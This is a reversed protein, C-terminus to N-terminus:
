TECRVDDIIRGDELRVIRQALPVVRPDHTVIAVIRTMEAALARLLGVVQMGNGADLSATPEDALVIAPDHAIARAVAVRQQEGGSLAAPKLMTKKALGVANLAARARSRAGDTRRVELSLLVNEEATLAPMLRFSQFVYGVKERRFSTRGDESLSELNTGGIRIAGRDPPLIAGLLSLLSTKGSGSPGVIATLIGPELTLNIEHLARTRAVGAGFALSM